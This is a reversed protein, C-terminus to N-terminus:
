PRARSYEHQAATRCLRATCSQSNTRPSTVCVEGAARERRERTAHAVAIWHRMVLIAILSIVLADLYTGLQTLPISFHTSPATGQQDRTRDTLSPFM